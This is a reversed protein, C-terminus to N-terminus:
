AYIQATIDWECIFSSVPCEVHYDPMIRWLSSYHGILQHLFPRFHTMRDWIVVQLDESAGGYQLYNMSAYKTLLIFGVGIFVSAM